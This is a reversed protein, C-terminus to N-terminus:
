DFPEIGTVTLADASLGTAGLTQRLAAAIYEVMERATM